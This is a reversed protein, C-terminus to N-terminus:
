GKTIERTISILEKVKEDSVDSLDIRPGKDESQSQNQNVNVEVGKDGFDEGYLWQFFLETADNAEKANDHVKEARETLADIVDHVTDTSVIERKRKRVIEMIIDKHKWRSLTDKSVGIEKALQRQSDIERESKPKVLWDVFERRDATLDEYSEVDKWETAGM